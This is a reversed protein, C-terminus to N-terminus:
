IIIDIGTLQELARINRGERGIIRGKMEDNPLDVVSVTTEAVHDAACRQIALTIIERAKKDGEERAQAEIDKILLAAEYQTEKEISDLLMQKADQSSLGSVRELEALQKAIIENVMEKQRDLENAKRLVQEEKKELQDLKRELTEDRQIVRRELRQLESRRDRVEKDFDSRLRHVEEKAELLAERRKSEATKKADEVIRTAEQEAGGIKQEAIQRRYLYGAVGALPIGVVIVAWSIM